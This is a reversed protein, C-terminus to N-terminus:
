DNKDIMKKFGPEFLKLVSFFNSFFFISYIEYIFHIMKSSVYLFSHSFYWKFFLYVVKLWGEKKDTNNCEQCIKIPVTFFEYTYCMKPLIDTAFPINRM